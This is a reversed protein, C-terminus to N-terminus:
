TLIRKKLSNFSRRTGPFDTVALHKYVVKLLDHTDAGALGALFRELFCKSTQAM